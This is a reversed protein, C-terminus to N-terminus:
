AAISHRAYMLKTVIGRSLPKIPPNCDLGFFNNIHQIIKGDIKSPPGRFRIIWGTKGTHHIEMRNERLLFM